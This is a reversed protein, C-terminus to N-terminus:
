RALILPQVRRESRGQGEIWAAALGPPFNSGDMAIQREENAQLEEDLFVMLERGTPDLARVLVHQSRLSVVRLTGSGDMPNPAISVLVTYGQPDETASLGTTFGCDGLVCGHDLHTAVDDRDVCITYMTSPNNPPTHCMRVKGDDCRADVVNVFVSDAAYCDKDGMLAVFYWESATACVDIASATLGNSWVLEHSRASNVVPELTTCTLPEYGLYLHVTDTPLDISCQAAATLTGNCLALLIKSRKQM